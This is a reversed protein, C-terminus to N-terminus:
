VLLEDYISLYADVMRDLSFEKEAKLRGCRGHTERLAPDRVYRVIASAMSEADNPPVLIGTVEDDVLEPNGGVRTAVVPVGTAMAELLTNSVGEVRSPLVFVDVCRLLDAVDNRSGPLWALSDIGVRKLAEEIRHRLPGDGVMVLRLRERETPVLESVRTFAEVLLLPDKVEQM